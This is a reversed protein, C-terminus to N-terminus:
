IMRCRIIDYFTMKHRNQLINHCIIVSDHRVVFCINTPSVDTNNSTM